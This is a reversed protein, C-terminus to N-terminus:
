SKKGGAWPLEDRFMVMPGQKHPTGVVANSLVVPGNSPTKCTLLSGHRSILSPYRSSTRDVKLDPLANVQLVKHKRRLRRIERERAKWKM